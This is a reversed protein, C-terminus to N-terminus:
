FTQKLLYSVQLNDKALLVFVDKSQVSQLFSASFLLFYSNTIYIIPCVNYESKWSVLKMM